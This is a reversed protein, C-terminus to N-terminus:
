KRDYTKEGRKLKYDSNISFLTNFLIKKARFLTSKVTGLPISLLDSIEIESLDSYYKLVIVQKLKPKLKTIATKLDHATEEQIIVNLVDESYKDDNLYDLLDQEEIPILKRNNRYIRIAENTAIASMWVGFKNADKLTNIKEYAIVFAEQTAEQALHNNKLIVYCIKYVKPYYTTYLIKFHQLL